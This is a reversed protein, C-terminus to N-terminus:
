KKVAERDAKRVAAVIAAYDVRPNADWVVYGHEKAQREIEMKLAEVAPDSKPKLYRSRLSAPPNTYGCEELCAACEGVAVGLAAAMRMSPYDVVRVNGKGDSPTRCDDWAECMKEILEERTM